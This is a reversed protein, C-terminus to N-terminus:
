KRFVMVKTKSVNVKLKWRKCYDTLLDLSSQLEEATISFIVIDDAYLQMLVKFLNVDLGEIGSMIFQEEIDNLFLSFLMPSICEGQRVGLQCFFESGLKNCFKVRSKVSSYM